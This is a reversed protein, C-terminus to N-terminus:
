RWLVLTSRIVSFVHNANGGSYTSSASTYCGLANWPGVSPVMTPVIFYMNEYTSAM